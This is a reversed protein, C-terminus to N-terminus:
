DTPPEDRLFVWRTETSGEADFRYGARDFEKLDEVRRLDRDLIYRVMMGRAKKAFFSIMKYRGNKWDRFEPTIVPVSLQDPDIAKFYEISALNVLAQAGTDHIDQDLTRTLKDGWWQYLNKADGVSLRTGMELRYPLIRDLPRLLGYLGSLIRMTSQAKEVQPRSLTDAELGAYVDGKFAFIAQKSDKEPMPLRWESFRQANVEALKESISMLAQLDGVTLTRLRDVLAAAESEFRCTTSVSHPAPTDFDLTKAPSIVTMLPYM